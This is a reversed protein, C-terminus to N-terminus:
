KLNCLVKLHNYGKKPINSNTYDQAIEQDTRTLMSPLKFFGIPKGANHEDIFEQEQVRLAERRSMEKFESNISDITDYYKQSLLDCAERTEQSQYRAKTANAKVESCIEQTRSHEQMIHQVDSKQMKM